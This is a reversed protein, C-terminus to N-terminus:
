TLTGDRFVTRVDDATIGPYDELADVCSDIEGTYGCEYNALERKIIAERGNEALDQAIGEAHIAGLKEIVTDAHEKPILMGAGTDVYRVGAQCKEQFQAVSFAFFVGYEDFLATQKDEVYNTLSKM